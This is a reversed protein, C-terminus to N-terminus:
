PGNLFALEPTPDDRGYKGGAAGDLVGEAAGSKLELYSTATSDLASRERRSRTSRCWSKLEAYNRTKLARFRTVARHQDPNALEVSPSNSHEPVLTSSDMRTNASKPAYTYVASQKRRFKVTSWPASAVLM